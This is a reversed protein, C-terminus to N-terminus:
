SALPTFIREIHGTGRQVMNWLEIADDDRCIMRLIVIGGNDGFRLQDHVGAIRSPAQCSVIDDPALQSRDSIIGMEHIEVKPSVAADVYGRQSFNGPRRTFGQLQPCTQPRWGPQSHTENM